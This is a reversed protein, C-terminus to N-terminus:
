GARASLRDGRCPLAPIGVFFCALATVLSLARCGSSRAAVRRSLRHADRRVSTGAPRSKRRWRGVLEELAPTFFVALALSIALGGGLTIALARFFLGTIDSVFVLPMFVAIVTLTSAILPRSLEALASKVAASTSLKTSHGRHIAEIMVIADDIFLGIGAAIGGLTMMNFTLGCLAMVVLTIAITCPVVVAAVLASLASLTFMWVVAVSLLLGLVIADRVSAVSEAM